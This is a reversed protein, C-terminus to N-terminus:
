RVFIMRQSTSRRALQTLVMALACAQVASVSKVICFRYLKQVSCDNHMNLALLSLRADITYMAALVLCVFCEMSANGTLEKYPWYKSGPKHEVELHVLPAVAQNAEKPLPIPQMVLVTMLLHIM